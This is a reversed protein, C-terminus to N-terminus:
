IDTFRKSESRRSVESLSNAETSTADGDSLSRDIDTLVDTDLTDGMDLTGMTDMGESPADAALTTTSSDANVVTSSSQVDEVMPPTTPTSVIGEAHALLSRIVFKTKGANLMVRLAHVLETENMIQITTARRELKFEQLIDGDPTLFLPYLEVGYQITFLRFSYSGLTPTIIEFSLLFDGAGLPRLLKTFSGSIDRVRAEVLNQTKQGLLAAQEQLLAVPSKLRVAYLDDPWLDTM